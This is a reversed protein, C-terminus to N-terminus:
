PHFSAKIAVNDRKFYIVTPSEGVYGVVLIVDDFYM